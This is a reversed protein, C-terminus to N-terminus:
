ANIRREILRKVRDEIVGATITHGNFLVFLDKTAQDVFPAIATVPTDLSMETYTTIKDDHAEGWDVGGYPDSWQLLKRGALGQWHFAFGLRTHETSWDLVKAFTIGVVITEAVRLIALIPDLSTGPEVRSPVADDQLVRRLYFEGRPDFRYFDLHSSVGHFLILSEVAGDRVIPRNEPTSSTSFDAWIPWGTLNPNSSAIKLSFSRDPRADPKPPDIILAASWFGSKLLRQGHVDLPRTRVAVKFREDGYDLLKEAHSRLTPPPKPQGLLGADQLVKVLPGTDGGSLHRRIFRGVDAERNDFCIEVIERWDEPRAEATSPTGNAALTRFYVAGHRVLTKTGEVLDRKAVVPVRVGPPVVMVPYEIGERVSFAVAIEFLESSYRSIHGQIKDVHFSGQIDPPEHGSDPALTSDDFGIVLYGGNRNRLALAAKVIKETGTPSDPDIWRKIEVSLAEAPRAVLSDIVSQEIPIPM